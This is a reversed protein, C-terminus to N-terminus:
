NSAESNTKTPRETLWNTLLAMRRDTTGGPCCIMFASFVCLVLLINFFARDPLLLAYGILILSLFGYDFLHDMYFRM